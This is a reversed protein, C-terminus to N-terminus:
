NGDNDGQEDDAIEGAAKEQDIQKKMEDMGDDDLQLVNKM